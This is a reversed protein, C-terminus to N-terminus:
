RPKGPESNIAASIDQADEVAERVIDRADALDLPRGLKFLRESELKIRECAREIVQNM